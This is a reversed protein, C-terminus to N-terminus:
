RRPWPPRGRPWRPRRFPGFRGQSAEGPGRRWGAPSQHGERLHVLGVTARRACRARVADVLNSLWSLEEVLRGAEVPALRAPDLGDALARAGAVLEAVASRAGDVTLWPATGKGAGGQDVADISGAGEHVDEPSPSIIVM